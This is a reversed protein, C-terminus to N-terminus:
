FFHVSLVAVVHVGGGLFFYYFHKREEYSTYRTLIKKLDFNIDLVWEQNLQFIDQPIETMPDYDESFVDCLIKGFSMSKIALIQESLISSFLPVYDIEGDYM